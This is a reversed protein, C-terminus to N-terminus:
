SKMWAARLRDRTQSLAEPLVRVNAVSTMFNTDGLWRPVVHTHLHDAFGAGGARGLNMGVNFGEPHYAVELARVALEVLEGCELRTAEDLDSLKAGHTHPVVMVHGATYPYINLVVLAHAARHVIMLDDDSAEGGRVIECLVCPRSDTELQGAARDM